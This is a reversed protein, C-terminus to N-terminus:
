AVETNHSHISRILGAASALPLLIRFRTGLGERSEVDLRGGMARILERAEFAGIGFGGPKSSHFPKFLRTRIFEPSMGTGSDIIEVIAHPEEVRLDLFVPTAEISAEIANQVLNRLAQVLLFREGRVRAPGGLEQELRIGRTAAAGEAADRVERVVDALDIESLAAGGRRSELAALELLQDVILQLRESEARLNALFRSRDPEPPNEALLEAAGRISSLPAKFEHTLTQTYREVYAKGELAVRMEEFAEVLAAIERARSQPPSGAQGDRVALAYDTLRELSHTLKSAIWWGALVMVAAISILVTFLSSRARSVGEAITALPRGVGVWGIQEGGRRVPAAVRLEGAVEAV